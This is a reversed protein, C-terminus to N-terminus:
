QFNFLNRTQFKTLAEKIEFIYKKGADLIGCKILAKPILIGYSNGVKTIKRIIRAM